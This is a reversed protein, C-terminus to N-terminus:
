RYKEETQWGYVVESEKLNMIINRAKKKTELKENHLEEAEKTLDYDLQKYIRYAISANSTKHRRAIEAIVGRTFRKM